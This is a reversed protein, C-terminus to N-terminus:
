RGKSRAEEITKAEEQNRAQLVALKALGERLDAECAIAYRRYVAETKHGTIKMAISRPVGARELNRVATRQPKFHHQARRPDRLLDERAPEGPLMRYTVLFALAERTSLRDPTM